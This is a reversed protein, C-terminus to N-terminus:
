LSYANFAGNDLLDDIGISNVKSRFIYSVMLIAASTTWESVIVFCQSMGQNIPKKLNDM